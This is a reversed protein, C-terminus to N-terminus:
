SKLIRALIDFNKCSKQQMLSTTQNAQKALNLRGAFASEITELWADELGDTVTREFSLLPQKSTQCLYTVKPDYPIGVVPTGAKVAMLLAHLRMGILLDFREMLALWQSPRVLDEAKLMFSKLDFRNCQDALKALVDSDESTQLPLMVFLSNSPFVKKFVSALIELHQGNILSHRRLSIGVLPGVMGLEGTILPLAFSQPLPSPKLSWVPDASLEPSLGLSQAFSISGPDRLTIYNAMKLTQCAFFKSLARKLPGIGQAYILVPAGALRAALIQGGYYFVPRPSTTDQLLGGGGSIFLRARKLLPMLEAIRWRNIAQVGYLGATKEPNNSLVVISEVSVFEKLESILEELIAEDGL